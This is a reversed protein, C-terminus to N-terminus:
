RRCSALMQDRVKLEARWGAPGVEECWRRHRGADLSWRPGTYGCKMAVNRKAQQLTLKAYADCNSGALAVGGQTIVLGGAISAAVVARGLCRGLRIM